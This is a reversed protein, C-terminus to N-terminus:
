ELLKRLITINRRTSFYTNYAERAGQELSKLLGEDKLIKLSDEVITDWTSIFVHKGHKLEPHVLKVIESTIIPKGYFLGELLRNSINRNTVPIVVLSAGRYLRAIANDSFGRGIIHLNKPPELDPLARRWDDYSSGALVVDTRTKKALLYLVIAHPRAEFKINPVPGVLSTFGLIYSGKDIIIPFERNLESKSHIFGYPPYVNIIKDEAFPYIKKAFSYTAHDVTISYTSSLIYYANAVTSPIFLPIDEYAGFRLNDRLKAARIGWLRLVITESAKLHRAVLIPLRPTAFVADYVRSGVFTSIIKACFEFRLPVGVCPIEYLNVVHVGNDSAISFRKAHIKSGLVVVDVEGLESLSAIFGLEHRSFVDGAGIYLFKM